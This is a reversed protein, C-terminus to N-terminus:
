RKLAAGMAHPLETDRRHAKLKQFAWLLSVALSPIGPAPIPSTGSLQYGLFFASPGRSHLETLSARATERRATRDQPFFTISSNLVKNM